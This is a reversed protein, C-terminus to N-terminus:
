KPPKLYHPCAYPAGDPAVPGGKPALHHRDPGRVELPGFEHDALWKCKDTTGTPFKVPVCEGHIGYAYDCGDINAGDVNAGDSGLPAMNAGDSVVPPRPASCGVLAVILGATAALAATRRKM